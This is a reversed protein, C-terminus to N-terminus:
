WSGPLAYRRGSHLRGGNEIWDSVTKPSKKWLSDNWHIEIGVAPWASCLRGSRMPCNKTWRTATVPRKRISGYGSLCNMQSCGNSCNSNRPSRVTKRTWGNLRNGISAISEIFHVDLPSNAGKKTL